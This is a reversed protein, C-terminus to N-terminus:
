GYCRRPSLEWVVSCPWAAIMGSEFEVLQYSANVSLFNVASVRGRMEDPTALQVLIIRIVMSVTDAAGVIVRALKSLWLLQSVAFVVTALGFIIVAQFMRMGVRHTIPHRALVTTMLLAGAAPAGRLVGLGWPGAHLIDRAYIPLLATAGRLLVAVLDLSITGLIAPSRRVFAIGAFLSAIFQRRNKRSWRTTWSSLGM